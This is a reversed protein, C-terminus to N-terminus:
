KLRKEVYDMGLFKMPNKEKFKWRIAKSRRGIRKRTLRGHCIKFVTKKDVFYKESLQEITLGSDADLIIASKTEDSLKTM